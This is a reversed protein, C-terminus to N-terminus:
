VVISPRPEAPEARAIMVVGATVLLVGALQVVSLREGLFVAGLLVAFLPESASVVVVDFVHHGRMGLALLGFAVAATLGVGLVYLVRGAEAFEVEVATPQAVIAVLGAVIAGAGIAVPPSCDRVDKGSDILLLIGAWALSSGLACALGVLDYDGFAPGVLLVIGAFVAAFAGHRLWGLREGRVIRSHLAIWLPSVFLIVIVVSLPVRSLAQFELSGGLWM